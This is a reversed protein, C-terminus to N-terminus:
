RGPRRGLEPRAGWKAGVHPEVHGPRTRAAQGGADTPGRTGAAGAVVQKGLESVPDDGRSHRHAADGSVHVLGATVQFPAEIGYGPYSLRLWRPNLGSPVPFLGGASLRAGYAAIEAAAGRALLGGTALTLLGARHAPRRQQQRRGLM